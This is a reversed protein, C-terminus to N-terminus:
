TKYSESQTVRHRTHLHLLTLPHCQMLRPSDQGVSTTTGGGGVGVGGVGALWGLGPFLYGHFLYKEQWGREWAGGTAQLVSFHPSGPIKEGM